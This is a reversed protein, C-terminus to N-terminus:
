FALVKKPNDILIKSVVRRTIGAEKLKPVVDSLILSWPDEEFLWWDAERKEAQWFTRYFYPHGAAVAIGPRGAGPRRIRGPLTDGNEIERRGARLTPRSLGTADSM